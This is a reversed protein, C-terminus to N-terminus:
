FPIALATYEIRVIFYINPSSRSVESISRDKNDICMSFLRPFAFNLMKVEIFGHRLLAMWHAM